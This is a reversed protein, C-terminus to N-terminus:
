LAELWTILNPNRKWSPAQRSPAVVETAELARRKM